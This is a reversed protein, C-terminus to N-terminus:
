HAIVWICSLNHKSCTLTSTLPEYNIDTSVLGVKMQLDLILDFKHRMKVMTPYTYLETHEYNIASHNIPLPKSM